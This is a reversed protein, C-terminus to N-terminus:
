AIRGVVTIASGGSIAINGSEHVMETNWTRIFDTPGGKSINGTIIVGRTVPYSDMGVRIAQAGLVDELYNGTVSVGETVSPAGRTNSVVRIGVGGPRIIRNNRVEISGTYDTENHVSIGHSMPDIILNGIIKGSRCEHNVGIGSSGTVTNYLFNVEEAATHTDLADGYNGGEHPRSYLIHSNQVTMRRGVGGATLGNSTTFAHRVDTFYCGDVTLDQTANLPAVGYGSSVTHTWDFSVDRVRVMACDAPAYHRWDFGSMRIGEIIVNHCLSTLIGTQSRGTNYEGEVTGRGHIRVGDVMDLPCVGANDSPLYPGGQVPVRPTITDGDVAHVQVLEGMAIFTSFSDYKRDSRLRIWQGPQVGHGPATISTAGRLVEASLGVQPYEVGSVAIAPGLGLHKVKAGAQIELDVPVSATAGSVLYTGPPVTISGGAALAETFAATDDAVGDGVAGFEKVSVGTRRATFVANTETGPTTIYSAVQPDTVATGGYPGEDGKEGKLSALWEVETGAYGNAVAVDYASNIGEMETGVRADVYADLGTIASAAHTHVANAKSGLKADVQAQTYYLTNHNHGIPSFKDARAWEFWEGWVNNYMNRQYTRVNNAYYLSYTQSKMNVRSSITVTLAGAAKFPYGRDLTAYGSASQYYNGPTQITDLHEGYLETPNVNRKADLEIQTAAGLADTYARSAADGADAEAKTYRNGLQGDVSGGLNRMAQVGNSNILDAGQPIVTGNPLTEAM